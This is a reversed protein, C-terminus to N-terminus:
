SQKSYNKDYPGSISDCMYFERIYEYILKSKSLVYNALIPM